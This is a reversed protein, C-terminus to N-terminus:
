ARVFDPKNFLSEHYYDKWCAFLDNWNTPLTLDFHLDKYAQNWVERSFKCEIFLHKLSEYSEKYLICRLPGEMGRKRINKTTLTKRHSLIWFFVNIKPLGDKNWINKWKMEISCSSHFADVIIYGEKM